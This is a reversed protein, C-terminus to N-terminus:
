NPPGPGVHCIRDLAAYTAELPILSAVYAARSWMQVTYAMIVAEHVGELIFLHLNQRKQAFFSGLAHILM